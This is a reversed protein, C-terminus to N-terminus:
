LNIRYTLPNNKDFYATFSQGIFLHSASVRDLDQIHHSRTQYIPHTVVYYITYRKYKGIGKCTINTIESFGKIGNNILFNSVKLEKYSKFLMVAMWIILALFIVIIPIEGNSSYTGIGTKTPINKDYFVIVSDGIKYDEGDINVYEAKINNYNEGALTTYSVYFSYKKTKGQSSYRDTKDVVGYVKEAGQYFTYKQSISICAEILFPLVLLIVAITSLMTFKLSRMSVIM